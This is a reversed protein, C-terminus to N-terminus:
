YGSVFNGLEAVKQNLRLLAGLRNLGIFSAVDTVLLTYHHEKLQQKLQESASM